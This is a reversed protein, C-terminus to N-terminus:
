KGDKFGTGSTPNNIVGALVLVTLVGNVIENYKDEAIEIGFAQAVILGLSAIAIWLAYNKFRNM